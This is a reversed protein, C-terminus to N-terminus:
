PNLHIDDIYLIGSGGGEVGIALETVSKLNGGVTSLDITWAQWASDGLNTADGDYLLKTDGIKCYLQGILGPSGAFMLSLTKVGSATWDLCHRSVVPPGTKRHTM